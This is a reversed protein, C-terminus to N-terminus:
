LGNDAVYVSQNMESRSEFNRNPAPIVSNIQQGILNKKSEIEHANIKKLKQKENDQAKKNKADEEAKIKAAEKKL